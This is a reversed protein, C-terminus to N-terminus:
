SECGIGDHDADFRHPDPARVTFNKYPIQGCDLDPPPPAICVTPYSPDCKRAPKTTKAPAAPRKTTPAPNPPAPNPAAPPAPVAPPPPSPSPTPSSSPSASATPLVPSSPQGAVSPRSPEPDKDDALVAMVGGCCLLLLTAPFVWIWKPISARPKNLPYVIPQTGTEAMTSPAQPWVDQPWSGQPWPNQPSSNTM